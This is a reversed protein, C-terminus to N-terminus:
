NGNVGHGFIRPVIMLGPIPLPLTAAPPSPEAVRACRGDALRTTGAPCSFTATQNTRTTPKAPAPTSSRQQNATPQVAAPSPKSKDSDPTATAASLAKGDPWRACGVATRATWNMRNAQDASHQAIGNGEGNGLQGRLVAQSSDQWAIEWYVDSGSFEGQVTASGVDSGVTGSMRNGDRRLAFELKKGNQLEIVIVTSNPLKCYDQVTTQSHGPLPCFSIAFALAALTTRFSNM